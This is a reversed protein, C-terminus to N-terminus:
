HKANAYYKNLKNKLETISVSSDIKNLVNFLEADIENKDFLKFNFVNYLNELKKIDCDFYKKNLLTTKIEIENLILKDLYKSVVVEKINKNKYINELEKNLFDSVINQLEKLDYDELIENKINMELLKRQYGKETRNDFWIKRKEKNLIKKFNDSLVKVEEKKLKLLEEILSDSELDLFTKELIEVKQKIKMKEIEKKQKATIKMKEGKKKIRARL